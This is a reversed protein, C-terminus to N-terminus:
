FIRGTRKKAADYDRVARQRRLRATQHKYEDLLERQKIENVDTDDIDTAKALGAGAIGGLVPPAALALPLGVGLAASGIGKAANVASGGLYGLAGLLPGVIAQKESALKVASAMRDAATKALSYIQDMSLGDEICRAMFGVKFAEQSTLM